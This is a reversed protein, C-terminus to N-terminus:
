SGSPQMNKRCNEASLNYVATSNMGQMLCQGMTLEWAGLLEIQPAPTMAETHYSSPQWESSYKDTFNINIALHTWVVRATRTKLVSTALSFLICWKGWGTICYFDASATVHESLEISNEYNAFEERSQEGRAAGCSVNWKTRVLGWVPGVGWLISYLQLYLIDKVCM